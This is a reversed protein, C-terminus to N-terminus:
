SKRIQITGFKDIFPDINEETEKEKEVVDNESGVKAAEKKSRWFNYIVLATLVVLMSILFIKLNKNM